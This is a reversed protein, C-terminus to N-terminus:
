GLAGHSGPIVMADVDACPTSVELVGLIQMLRMQFVKLKFCFSQDLCSCFHPILEGFLDLRPIAMAFNVDGFQYKDFHRVLVTLCQM